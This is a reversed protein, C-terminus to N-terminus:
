LGFIQMMNSSLSFFPTEISVTAVDSPDDFGREVIEHLEPFEEMAFLVPATVIGQEYLPM